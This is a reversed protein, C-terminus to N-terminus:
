LGISSSMRRRDLETCEILANIIWATFLLYILYTTEAFFYYPIYPYVSYRPNWSPDAIIVRSANTLNLGIGGVKTTM